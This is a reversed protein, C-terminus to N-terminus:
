ATALTAVNVQGAGKALILATCSELTAGTTVVDDVILINKGYVREPEALQFITEVNKYREFRSKRTQTSTNTRRLLVQSEVPAQLVNSIGQAIFLSQNYGRIKEKKPHLPVPVILDIPSLRQTHELQKGLEIGLFEGVNTKGNYKLQHLLHQVRNSKRFYCLSTAFHVACRGWFLREVPNDKELHFNTYPLDVLCNICVVKENKLLPESCAACISPYFLSFLEQFM